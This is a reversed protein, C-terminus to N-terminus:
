EIMIVADETIKDDSVDSNESFKFDESTVLEGIKLQLICSEIFVTTDLESVQMEMAFNGCKEKDELRDDRYGTQIGFAFVFFMIFMTSSLIKM